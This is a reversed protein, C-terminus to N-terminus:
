RVLSEDNLFFPFAEGLFLVSQPPGTVQLIQRLRTLSDLGLRQITDLDTAPKTKSNFRGCVPRPNTRKKKKTM